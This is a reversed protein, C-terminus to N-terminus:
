INVHLLDEKTIEDGEKSSADTLYILCVPIVMGVALNQIVKFINFMQVFKNREIEMFNLHTFSIVVVCFIFFLAIFSLLTEQNLKNDKGSNCSLSPRERNAINEEHKTSIKRARVFLCLLFANLVVFNFILICVMKYESIERNLHNHWVIIASNIFGLSVAASVLLRPSVQRSKHVVAHCSESVWIAALNFALFIDASYSLGILVPYSEEHDNAFTRRWSEVTNTALITVQYVVQCIMLPRYNHLFKHKTKDRFCSLLLQINFFVGIVDLAALLLLYVLGM